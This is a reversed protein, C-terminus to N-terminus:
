LFDAREPHTMEGSWALNPTCNELVAPYFEIVKWTNEHVEDTKL